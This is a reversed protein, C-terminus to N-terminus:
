ILALSLITKGYGPHDACIGGRMNMTAQARMELAWSLSTLREEESEEILHEKGKSSEQQKMWALSLRQNPFLEITMGLDDNCPEINTIPKLKFPRFVFGNSANSSTNLRWNYKVKYAYHPLRARVRHAMSALNVGLKIQSASM